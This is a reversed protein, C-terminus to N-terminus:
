LPVEWGADVKSHIWYGRRPIFYDDPGIDHWTKKAGDFWQISDVETGFELNNLGVTRNYGMLSPYGVMNWGNYLRITQNESPATGIYEFLVGGPETIHVWLAMTHNVEGLDNLYPQKSTHNHKWPDSSDSADYWQVTDYKGAISSLISSLNTDPQIYPFSMLNWGEHLFTYNGVPNILPYDDVSGVDAVYYSDNIGDHGPINQNVGSFEDSIPSLDSWYNGGSPYVDNWINDNRNDRVQKTNGFFNNHYIINDSSSWMYLGYSLHASMTNRIINNNSSSDMHIGYRNNWIINGIIDVNSSYGLLIGNDTNSLQLNRIEIDVCNALIIQGVALGDIVIGNLDKFYIVPKGNVLNNMPINHTNYISVGPGGGVFIGDNVMINNQVDTNTSTHIYMGSWINRSIRNNKIVCDASSKPIIGNKENDEVTNNEFINDDSSYESLIGNGRNRFIHNNYMRSGPTTDLYIGDDNYSINNNFITINLSDLVRIGEYLNFHIENTSINFDKSEFIQIGSDTNNIYLNKINFGTCNALILQGTPTGDIDMGVINKHYYIPKGNVTNNTTITHSNYDGGMNIGCDTFTNNMVTNSVGRLAMGHWTNQSIKNGIIDNNSSMVYMGNSPFDNNHVRNFHAGNFLWVAVGTNKYMYNDSINNHISNDLRAGYLLNELLINESITNNSSSSLFIGYDDNHSINNNTFTNYNSDVTYIGDGLNYEITNNSITNDHSNKLYIGNQGNAQLNNKYINCYQVGDLTIGASTLMTRSNTINFGTINVSDSSVYLVDSVVGGDVITKERSEGMLTINKGIAVNEYYTGNYVYVTDGPNAANVAAQITLHDAGGSDDVTITVARAPPTLDIVIVILGLMMVLSIWVAVMKRRM